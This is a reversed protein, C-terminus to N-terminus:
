VELDLGLMQQFEWKKLQYNTVASFM